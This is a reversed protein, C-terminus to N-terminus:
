GQYVSTWGPLHDMGSLGIDLGAPFLKMGSLGVDLGTPSKSRISRHGARCSLAEDRISRHGARCSLAEDRISRHGARCTIWGQYVSTWGPLLGTSSAGEFPRPSGTTWSTQSVEECERQRKNKRIGPHRLSVLRVIALRPKNDNAGERGFLVWASPTSDLRGSKKSVHQRGSSHPTRSDRRPDCIDMGAYRGAFVAEAVQVHHQSRVQEDQSLDETSISCLWHLSALNYLKDTTSVM